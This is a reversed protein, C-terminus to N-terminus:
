INMWLRRFILEMANSTLIVFDNKEVANTDADLVLRTKNNLSQLTLERVYVFMNPNRGMGPDIIVAFIKSTNDEDLQCFSFQFTRKTGNNNGSDSDYHNDNGKDDLKSDGINKNKNKKRKNKRTKITKKLKDNDYMKSIKDAFLLCNVNLDFSLEFYRSQSHTIEYM